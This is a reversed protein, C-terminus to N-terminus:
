RKEKTKSLFNAECGLDHGCSDKRRKEKTKKTKSPFNADCGLDYGCGNKKLEKRTKQHTKPLFIQKAGWTTVMVANEERKKEKHLGLRFVM